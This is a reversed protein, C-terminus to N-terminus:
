KNGDVGGGGIEDDSKAFLAFCFIGWVPIYILRDFILIWCEEAAACMGMAVLLCKDLTPLAVLGM